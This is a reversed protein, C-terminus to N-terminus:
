TCYVYWVDWLKDRSNSRQLLMIPSSCKGIVGQIYYICNNYSSIQKQTSVILYLWIGLSGWHSTQLSCKKQITSFFEPFIFVSFSYLYHWIGFGRLSYDVFQWYMHHHIFVRKVLGTLYSPFFYNFHMIPLHIATTVIFLDPFSKM